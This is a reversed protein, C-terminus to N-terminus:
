GHRSEKVSSAEVAHQGFVLRLQEAQTISSAYRRIGLEYLATAATVANSTLRAGVPFASGTSILESLLREVLPPLQREAPSATGAEEEIYLLEEPQGLTTRVLEALDIWLTQGTGALAGPDALVAPNQVVAGTAVGTGALEAFQALERASTIGGILLTVADHGAERAAAAAGQAYAALLRQPGLPHLLHPALSTWKEIWSRARASSLNPIRVHAALGAAEKLLPLLAARVAATVPEEIVGAPSDPDASYRGIAALLAPLGGSAHLLDTLPVIAIGAAGTRRAVEVPLASTAEPWVAAGSQQDAWVLLQSLDDLNRTPVSRPVDGLIIDGTGGDVSIIEGERYRHGDLVLVGEDPQVQLDECGVVCPKDLARSVVAAHSTAGGRATVIANAALMGRLDQPSTTPRVLVVPEGGAAKQAARDADLVAQGSGHGPSAPVGTTLVRGGARATALAAADFEPSILRKVQDPDVRRVAEAAPIVGEHVLDAAIHVAAAATRKAPRVQLLYLTGSEATFEIDLADRYEAELRQGYGRLEDVIPRWGPVADALKVPTRTGAVVDEGQGGALYEGYLEPTGSAPDRTFAVGSGAPQGLNGFVMAQVTVATGLDHPIGHHERYLRARRSDWSDFVARVAAGLQEAPDTSVPGAERSLVEVIREELEAAHEGDLNAAARGLVEAVQSRLLDPDVGLVIDAYMAWFRVWTDVAFRPDGSLSALRRVSHQDLGLNLITDMMGPMSVQAGSRVSVLLPIGGSGAFSKGAARELAAVAGSIAENLDAPIAGHEQYVGCAATEIVFAPPVPLG